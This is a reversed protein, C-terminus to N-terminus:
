RIIQVWSPHITSFGPLKAIVQDSIPGTGDRDFSLVGTRTDLLLTARSTHPRPDPGAVLV